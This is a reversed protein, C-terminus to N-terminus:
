GGPARSRAGRHGQWARMVGHSPSAIRVIGNPRRGAGRTRRCGISVDDGVRAIIVVARANIPRTRPRASTATAARVAIPTTAPPVSRARRARPPRRRCTERHEDVLEPVHEREPRVGAAIRSTPPRVETTCRRPVGSCATERRGRLVARPRGGPPRARPRRAPPASVRPRARRMGVGDSVGERRGHSRAVPLRGASQM